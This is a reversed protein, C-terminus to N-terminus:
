VRRPGQCRGSSHKKWQQGSFVKSLARHHWDSDQLAAQKCLAERLCSSAQFSAPVEERPPTVM